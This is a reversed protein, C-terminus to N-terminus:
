PLIAPRELRTIALGLRALRPPLPKDVFDMRESRKGNPDFTVGDPGARLIGSPVQQGHNGLWVGETEDDLEQIAGRPGHPARDFYIDQGRNPTRIVLIGYREEAPRLDEHGESHRSLVGRLIAVDVGDLAGFMAVEALAIRDGVRIPEFETLRAFLIASELGTTHGM